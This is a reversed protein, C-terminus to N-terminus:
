SGAARRCIFAAQDGAGLENLWKAWREFERIRRRSFHTQRPNHAFSEKSHHFINRRYEESGWFQIKSSDDIAAEVQLGVQGALLRFSARTFLNQHRPADWQFWDAGYHFFAFSDALPIRVVVCGGPELLAAAQALMERPNPVHEFAHNFLIAHYTRREDLLDARRLEVGEPTRADAPMFPDIGTCQLGACQLIRILNGAGSGVDLVRQGQRLGTRALWYTYYPQKCAGLLRGAWSGGGLTVSTRARYLWRRWAPIPQAHFSYYGKAYYAGLDAVPTDLHLHGCAGCQVYEFPELTGYMKERTQLRRNGAENGCVICSPVAM